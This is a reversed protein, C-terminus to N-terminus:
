KDIVSDDLELVPGVAPNVAANSVVVDIRGHRQVCFDVLRRLDEPKGVHCVTGSVRAEGLGESRLARLAADVNSQRRSCIVVSAGEHALRRAISLGIGETSATILAVKGDYRRCAPASSSPEQQQDQPPMTDRSHREEERRTCNGASSASWGSCFALRRFFLLLHPASQSHCSKSM